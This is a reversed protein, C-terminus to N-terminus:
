CNFPLAEIIPNQHSCMRLPMRLGVDEPLMYSPPTPSGVKGIPVAGVKGSAASLAPSIRPAPPLAPPVAASVAPPVATARLLLSVATGGATETATGLCEGWYGPNGRCNRCCDGCCNQPIRAQPGTSPRHFPLGLGMFVCSAFVNRSSPDQIRLSM